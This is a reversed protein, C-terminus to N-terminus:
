GMVVGCAEALARVQRRTPNVRVGVSIYQLEVFDRSQVLEIVGKAIEPKVSEWWEPTAPEQDDPREVRLGIEAFHKLALLDERPVDVESRESPFWARWKNLSADIIGITCEAAARQDTTM